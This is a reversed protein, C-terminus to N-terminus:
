FWSVASWLLWDMMEDASTLILLQVAASIWSISADPEEGAGTLLLCGLVSDGSVSTVQPDSSCDPQYVPTFIFGSKLGLLESTIESSEEQQYVPDSCSRIHSQTNVIRIYVVCFLKHNIERWEDASTPPRSSASRARRDDDQHSLLNEDGPSLGAEQGKHHTKGKKKREGSVDWQWMWEKVLLFYKLHWWSLIFNHFTMTM